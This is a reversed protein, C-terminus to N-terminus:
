DKKNAILETFLCKNNINHIFASASPRIFGSFNFKPNSSVSIASRSQSDRVLVLAIDLQDWRSWFLKPILFSSSFM